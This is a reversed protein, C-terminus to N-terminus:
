AIPDVAFSSPPEGREFRQWMGVYAAELHRAFRKTDFLPSTLRNGALKAKTQALRDPDRALALAAAEYDALSHTILEALGVARLLSGSVRSVFADGACTVVPVGAWLLDSTTAGGNCPM